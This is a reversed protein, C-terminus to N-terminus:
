VLHTLISIEKNKRSSPCHNILLHKEVPLFFMMICSPPLNRTLQRGLKLKRKIENKVIENRSIKIIKRTSRDVLRASIKQYRVFDVRQIVSKLRNSDILRNVHRLYNELLNELNLRYSRRSFINLRFRKCKEGTFKARNSTRVAFLLWISCKGMLRPCYTKRLDNLSVNLFQNIIIKWFPKMLQVANTM